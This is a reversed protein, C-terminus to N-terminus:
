KPEFDCRAIYRASRIAYIDSELQPAAIRISPVVRGGLEVERNSRSDHRTTIKSRARGYHATQERRRAEEERGGHLGGGRSDQGGQVAGPGLVVGVRVRGEEPVGRGHQPVGRLQVHLLEVM